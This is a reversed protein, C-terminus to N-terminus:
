CACVLPLSPPCSHIGVYVHPLDVRPHQSTCVFPARSYIDIHVHPSDILCQCVYILPMHLFLSLSATFVCACPFDARQCQHTCIIPITSQVLGASLVVLMSDALPALLAAMACCSGSPGLVHSLALHSPPIDSYFIYWTCCTGAQSNCVASCSTLHMAVFPLSL